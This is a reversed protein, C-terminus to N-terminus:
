RLIALCLGPGGAEGGASGGEGEGVLTPVLGRQGLQASADGVLQLGREARDRVGEGEQGLVVDELHRNCRGRHHREGRWGEVARVDRGDVRAEVGPARAGVEVAAEGAGAELDSSCVYSSWDSIRM